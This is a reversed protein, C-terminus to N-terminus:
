RCSYGGSFVLILHDQKFRLFLGPFLNQSGSVSSAINHIGTRQSIVSICRQCKVYQLPDITIMKPRKKVPVSNQKRVFLITQIGTGKLGFTYHTGEFVSNGMQM